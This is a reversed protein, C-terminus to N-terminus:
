GNQRPRQHDDGAHPQTRCGALCVPSVNGFTMDRGGALQRVVLTTGPADESAAAGDGGGRGGRAGGAAPAATGAAPATASSPRMALYAGDPSFSFSEIADVTATEGSGLNVLGLKNQVPRQESRLREQEAESQGISYALWKADSSYAPQAGFAIVKTSGDALKAIRLESDRNSRTITYSVFRGDPSFGGRGGAPTMTEWQGFDAFTAPPKTQAGIAITLILFGLCATILNRRM